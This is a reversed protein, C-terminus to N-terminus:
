ATVQALKIYRGGILWEAVYLNGTADAALGHPSNFRGPQLRTTREVGEGTARTQNPWGPETCVSENAGLVDVVRDERDLVVLRARLEGVILRDGAFAFVSPSTLFSEGVNRKWNGQLDYVQLRHNTRDAIYLEPESKRWDVTVGHPTAFRGDHGETGDLTGLYTGARDYHHILSSGYGDAVFLDGRGGFREEAVAVATPSYKGQAYLPHTPRALSLVVEGDLTLKLVQGAEVHPAYTPAGMRKSGPDAIWLSPTGDEHTVALGHGEVVPAMWSRLLRGEPSFFLVEPRAPHITVIEGAPTVAVGPHSWGERAAAPDPVAAWPEHWIYSPGDTAQQTVRM